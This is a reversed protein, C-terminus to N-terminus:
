RLVSSNRPASSALRARASRQTRAAGDRAGFRPASGRREASEPAPPPGRPPPAGYPPGGGGPPPPPPPPTPTTQPRAGRPPAPGGR